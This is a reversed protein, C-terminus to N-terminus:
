HELLTHIAPSRSNSKKQADNTEHELLAHTEPSRSNSKKQADNTETSWSLTSQQHALHAEDTETSWSLAPKQHALTQNRRHMVQLFAELSHPNRTLSIYKM